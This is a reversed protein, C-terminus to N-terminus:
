GMKMDGQNSDGAKGQLRSLSVNIRKKQDEQIKMGEENCARKEETSPFEQEYVVIKMRATPMSSLEEFFWNYAERKVEWMIVGDEVGKVRDEDM